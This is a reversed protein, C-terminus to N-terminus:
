AGTAAAAKATGCNTGWIRRRQDVASVTPTEQDHAASVQTLLAAQVAYKASARYQVASTGETDTAMRAPSSAIMSVPRTRAPDRGSISVVAHLASSTM